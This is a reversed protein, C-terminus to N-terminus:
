TDNSPCTSEAPPGAAVTPPLLTEATVFPTTTSLPPASCLVISHVPEVVGIVADVLLMKLLALLGSSNGDLVPIDSLELATKVVAVLLSAEDLRGPGTNGTVSIM